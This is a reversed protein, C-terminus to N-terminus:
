FGAAEVAACPASDIIMKANRKRRVAPGRPRDYPENWLLGCEKAIKTLRGALDEESEERVRELRERIAQNVATTMSGGTIRARARARRHTEEDKINLSM